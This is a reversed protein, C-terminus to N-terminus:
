QAGLVFHWHPGTAHRSPNRVEDIAEILKYGAAEIQRKAQEFTMGKIPAIDVAAGTKVHYSRPNSRGLASAPDRRGQTIRANPFLSSIIAKADTVPRFNGSGNSAAGGKVRRQGNPDIYPTGPALKDYEEASGIRVPQPAGGGIAQALGSQPGAYFGGGPLLTTVMPDKESAGIIRQAEEEGIAQRFYEYNQIDATRKEMKSFREGDAMALMMGITERAAGPNATVVKAADAFRRAMDADGANEYGAAYEELRKAADEVKGSNLLVLAEAGANFQAERKEGDLMQWQQQFQERYQPLELSANIYDKATAKDGLASLRTMVEQAKRAQEQQARHQEMAQVLQLGQLYGQMPDAVPISYNYPQPM